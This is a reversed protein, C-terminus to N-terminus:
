EEGEIILKAKLKKVSDSLMTDPPFVEGPAAPVLLEEATLMLGVYGGDNLQLGIDYCVNLDNKENIYQFVDGTELDERKLVAKDESKRNDIVQLGM